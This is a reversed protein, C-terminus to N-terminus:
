VKGKVWPFEWPFPLLDTQLLQCPSFLFLFKCSEMTLLLTKMTSSVPIVAAAGFQCISLPSFFLISLFMQVASRRPM